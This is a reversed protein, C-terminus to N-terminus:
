AAPERSVMLVAECFLKGTALIMCIAKLFVCDEKAHPRTIKMAAMGPHTPAWIAVTLHTHANARSPARGNESKKELTSLCLTMGALAFMRILLDIGLIERMYLRVLEGAVM